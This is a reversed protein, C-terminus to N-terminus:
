ISAEFFELGPRRQRPGARRAERYYARLGDLARPTLEFMLSSACTAAASRSGRIPDASYADAIADLHRWAQRPAGASAVAVVDPPAADPRGSWFAWVFPLGTM